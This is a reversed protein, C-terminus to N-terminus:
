GAQSTAPLGRVIDPRVAHRHTLVNTLNTLPLCRLRVYPDADLIEGSKQQFNWIPLTLSHDYVVANGAM